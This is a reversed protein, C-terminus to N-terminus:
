NLLSVTYLLTFEDHIMCLATVNSSHCCLTQLSVIDSFVSLAAHNGVHLHMGHSMTFDWWYLWRWQKQWRWHLRSSMPLPFRTRWRHQHLCCRGCLRSHNLMWWYSCIVLLNCSSLSAQSYEIYNVAMCTTCISDTSSVFGVMSSLSIMYRDIGTNYM